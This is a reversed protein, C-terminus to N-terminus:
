NQKLSIKRINNNNYDSVYINKGSADVSIGIPASFEAASLAGNVLGSADNRTLTTGEGDTFGKMGNGSTGNDVSISKNPKDAHGIVVIPSSKKIKIATNTMDMESRADGSSSLYLKSYGQISMDKGSSTTSYEYYMYSGSGSGPGSSADKSSKGTTNTCAPSQFLTVILFAPPALQRM